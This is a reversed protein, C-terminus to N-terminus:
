NQGSSFTIAQVQVLSFAGSFVTLILGSCHAVHITIRENFFNINTKLLFLVATELLTKNVWRDVRVEKRCSNMAKYWSWRVKKKANMMIEAVVLHRHWKVIIIHWKPGRAPFALPGFHCAITAITRRTLFTTMNFHNYQTVTFSEATWASPKMHNLSSSKLATQSSNGACNNFETLESYLSRTVTGWLHSKNSTLLSCAECRSFSQAFFLPHM